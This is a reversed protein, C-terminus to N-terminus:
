REPELETSHLTTGELDKLQVTMAGSSGDITVHGFFQLGASPPLDPTPAFRQYEVRPGFTQDLENPGFTGANIPGSVFEWFPKFDHFTARAPDYHHAATYHVDATIWVVNDIAERKIFSLLEAVELERGLARGDHDNAVAEFTTESDPVVLGVPMDSAIVKWTARSRRLQLKLWELQRRGLIATVPSRRRQDNSTNPGRYTRMDIFFLDLLPGYAVKRYIRDPDGHQERLPMFEVFARRARAALLNVDTVTYLPDDLIEGPYWNNTTEHDDWQAFIPVEANFSRVNPDMLNYKYNGRFEDLTEAVKAKEPTVINRWVSGDPLTVSESIPGDAYVTDGSHIFFDPKLVRMAEYLRMGGFDPNIGWGQGATDGSWVFTLTSKAGPATRFSGVSPESTLRRDDLDEFSVRYFLQEAPPLGSLDLQATFDTTARAVPGRIAHATSFTNNTDVEVIMRSLRNARAWVVASTRTIDGSQVGYTVIPRGSRALAVAGPQESRLSKISSAQGAGILLGSAAAGSGLAVGGDLFRRRSIRSRDKREEM